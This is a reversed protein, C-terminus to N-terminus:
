QVARVHEAVDGAHIQRLEVLEVASEPELLTTRKLLGAVYYHGGVIGRFVFKMYTIRQRNQVTRPTDAAYIFRAHQGAKYDGKSRQLLERGVGALDTHNVHLKVIGGSGFLHDGTQM